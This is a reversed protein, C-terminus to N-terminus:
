CPLLSAREMKESASCVVPKGGFSYDQYGVERCTLLGDPLERGRDQLREGELGRKACAITEGEEAIGVVAVLVVM